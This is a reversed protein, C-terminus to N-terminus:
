QRIREHHNTTLRCAVLTRWRNRPLSSCPSRVVEVRQRSGAALELAHERIAAIRAVATDPHVGRRIMRRRMEEEHVLFIGLAPSVCELTVLSGRMTKRSESVIVEMAIVPIACYRPGRGGPMWIGDTPHRRSFSRKVTYGLERGLDEFLAQAERHGSTM